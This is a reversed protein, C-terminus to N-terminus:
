IRRRRLAGGLAFLGVSLAFLSGPEPVTATDTVSIDDFYASITDHTSSAYGRAILCNMPKANSATLSYSVDRVGDVYWTVLSNGAVNPDACGVISFTHWGSSRVANLNFWVSVSGSYCRGQYKTSDFSAGVVRSSAVGALLDAGMSSGYGSAYSRIEGYADSKDVNSINDLLSFTFTFTTTLNTGLNHYMGQSSDHLYASYAGSSKETSSQAPMTCGSAAAWNSMGSEFSDTWSFAMGPAAVLAVIAVVAAVVLVKKM